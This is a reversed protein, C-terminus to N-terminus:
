FKVLSLRLNNVTSPKEIRELVFTHTHDTLMVLLHLKQDTLDGNQGCMTRQGSTIKFGTIINYEM